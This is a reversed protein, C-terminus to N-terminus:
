SVRAAILPQKTGAPAVYNPDAIALLPEVCAEVNMKHQKLVKTLVDDGIGPFMDHLEALGKNLAEEQSAREQYAM